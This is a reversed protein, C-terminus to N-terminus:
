EWLVEFKSNRCNIGSCSEKDELKAEYKEIIEQPLVSALNELEYHDNKLNYAEIFNQLYINGASYIYFM